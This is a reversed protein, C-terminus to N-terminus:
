RFPHELRVPIPVASPRRASIAFKYTTGPVLTAPASLTLKCGLAGGQWVGHETVSGLLASGSWVYFHLDTAECDPKNTPATAPRIKPNQLPNVGNNYSQISFMYSDGECGQAQMGTTATFATARATFARQVTGTSGCGASLAQELTGLEGELLAELDMDSEPAGCGALAALASAVALMRCVMSRM